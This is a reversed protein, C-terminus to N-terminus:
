SEQSLLRKAATIQRRSVGPRVFTQPFKDCAGNLQIFPYYLQTSNQDVAYYLLLMIFYKRVPLPVSLGSM